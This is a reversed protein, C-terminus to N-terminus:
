AHQHEQRYSVRAIVGAHLRRLEDLTEPRDPFLYLKTKADRDIEIVGRSMLHYLWHATVGLAQAVQPVTLFGDVNRPRPARYRHLRQHKLRISKVTSTLLV